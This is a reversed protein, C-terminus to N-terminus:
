CGVCLPLMSVNYWTVESYVLSILTSASSISVKYLENWIRKSQGKNFICERMEKRSCTLYSCSKLPYIVLSWEARGGVRGGGVCGVDLGESWVSEGWGCMGGGAGGGVWM